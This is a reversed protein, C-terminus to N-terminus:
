LMEDTDQILFNVVFVILLRQIQLIFAICDPQIQSIRCNWSVHNTSGYVYSSTGDVFRECHSNFFQRQWWDYFLFLRVASLLKILCTLFYGFDVLTVVPCINIHNEILLLQKPVSEVQLLLTTRRDKDETVDGKVVFTDQLNLFYQFLQGSDLNDDEQQGVILM